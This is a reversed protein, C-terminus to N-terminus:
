KIKNILFRLASVLEAKNNTCIADLEDTLAEELEDTPLLNALHRVLGLYSNAGIAGVDACSRLLAISQSYPYQTQPVIVGTQSQIM